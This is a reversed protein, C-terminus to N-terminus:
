QKASPLIASFAAGAGTVSDPLAMADHLVSLPVWHPPYKFRAAFVCMLEFARLASRQFFGLFFQVCCNRGIRMYCVALSFVLPCPSLSGLFRLGISTGQVQLQLNHV